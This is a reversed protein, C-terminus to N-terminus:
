LGGRAVGTVQHGTMTEIATYAVLQHLPPHPALKTGAPRAPQYIRGMVTFTVIVSRTAAPNDSILVEQEQARAQAASTFYGARVFSTIAAAVFPQAAPRDSLTMDCSRLQGQKAQPYVPLWRPLGPAAAGGPSRALDLRGGNAAGRVQAVLRSGLARQAANTDAAPVLDAYGLAQEGSACTTPFKVSQSLTTGTATHGLATPTAPASAPWFGIALGTAAAAAGGALLPLRLGHRMMM